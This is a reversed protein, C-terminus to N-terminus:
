LGDLHKLSNSFIVQRLNGKVRWCHIGTDGSALWIDSNVPLNLFARFLMHILGGHSVVAIREVQGAREMVRGWAREARLRLELESEGGPVPQHAARGGPPYPYRQDALTRKLGGLVGSNMERLDPDFHPALNQARAIIQATEAARQLPSAIIEDVPLHEALWGAARQAQLRGFDTLPFDARGEFREELDALSQGHRIVVIEPM